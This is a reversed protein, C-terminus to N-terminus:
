VDLPALRQRRLLMHILREKVEEVHVRQRLLQHRHTGLVRILLHLRAEEDVLPAWSGITIVVTAGRVVLSVLELHVNWECRLSGGVGEVVDVGRLVELQGDDRM